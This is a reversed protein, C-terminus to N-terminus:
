KKRKKIPSILRTPRRSRAEAFLSFAGTTWNPVGRIERQYAVLEPTARCPLIRIPATLQDRAEFFLYFWPEGKRLKLDRSQDVWEFAWSLPRPWVDIPFRGCIQLIPRNILEPDLFPPLQSLYVPEDAVFTYPTTIQVVPHSPDRWEDVPMLSLIRRLAESSVTSESPVIHIAPKKNVATVIRLRLDFPVFVQFYRSELSGVAPCSQVAKSGLAVKRSSILRQPYPYIVGAEDANIVCGVDVSKENM